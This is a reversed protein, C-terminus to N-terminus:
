EDVSMAQKGQVDCGLDVLYEALFAIQDAYRGLGLVPKVHSRVRAKHRNTKEIVRLTPNGLEGATIYSISKIAEVVLM